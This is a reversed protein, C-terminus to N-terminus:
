PPCHDVFFNLSFRRCQHESQGPGLMCGVILVTKMM